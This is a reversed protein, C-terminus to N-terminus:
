VCRQVAGVLTYKACNDITGRICAGGEDRYFFDDCTVCVSSRGGGEACNPVPVCARHNVEFYYNAECEACDQTFGNLSHVCRAIKACEFRNTENVYYGGITACQTCGTFTMETNDRSTCNSISM